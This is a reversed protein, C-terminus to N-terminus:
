GEWSFNVDETVACRVTSKQVYCSFEKNPTQIKM